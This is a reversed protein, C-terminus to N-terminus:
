MGVNGWGRLPPPLHPIPIRLFGWPCPIPIANGSIGVRSDSCGGGLSGWGTDLIESVGGLLLDSFCGGPADLKEPSGGGLHTGVGLCKNEPAL